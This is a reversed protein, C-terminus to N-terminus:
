SSPREVGSLPLFDHEARQYEAESILGAKYARYYMGLNERLERRRNTIQDDTLPTGDFLKGQALDEALAQMEGRIFNPGLKVLGHEDIWGDPGMSAYIGLGFGLLSMLYLIKHESLTIDTAGTIVAPGLFLVASTGILLPKIKIVL